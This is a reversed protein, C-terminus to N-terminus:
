RAGEVRAHIRDAAADAAAFMADREVEDMPVGLSHGVLDKMTAIFTKPDPRRLRQYVQRLREVDDGCYDVVDVYRGARLAAWVGAGDMDGKGAIGLARCLKDLSVRNGAGAWLSMTDIVQDTRYKNFDIPWWDPFEVGLVVCRQWIMRVDFDASHAAVVPIRGFRRMEMDVNEITCTVERKGLAAVAENQRATEIDDAILAFTNRLLDREGELVEELEPVRDPYARFAQNGGVTILRDNLAFAFASLHATAGDVNTKGYEVEIDNTAKEIADARRKAIDAAVKEPDKLNAAAKISDLDVAHKAEIAARVAPDHSPATETDIFLTLPLTVSM